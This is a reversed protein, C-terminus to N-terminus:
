TLPSPACRNAKGDNSDLSPALEEARLVEAQRVGTAILELIGSQITPVSTDM